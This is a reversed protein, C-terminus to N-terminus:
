CLLNNHSHPDPGPMGLRLLRVPYRRVQCHELCCKCHKKSELGHLLAAAQVM